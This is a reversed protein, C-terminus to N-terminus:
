PVFQGAPQGNVVVTYPIQSGSSFEGLPIKVEFSELVQICIEAPDFVSYVDVNIQNQKDPKSITVRLQHCPTSLTGSLFLVPQGPDSAEVQIEQKTISVEGRNLKADGPVPEWSAPPPGGPLSSCASLLLGYLIILVISKQYM